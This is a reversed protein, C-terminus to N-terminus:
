FCPGMPPLVFPYFIMYCQSSVFTHLFSFLLLESIDISKCHTAQLAPHSSWAVSVRKAALMFLSRQRWSWMQPELVSVRGKVREVQRVRNLDERRQNWSWWKSRQMQRVWLHVFNDETGRSKRRAALIIFIPVKWGAINDWAVKASLGGLQVWDEPNKRKHFVCLEICMELFYPQSWRFASVTHADIM